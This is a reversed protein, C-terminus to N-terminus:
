TSPPMNSFALTPGKRLGRWAQFLWCFCGAEWLSCCGCFGGLWGSASGQRLWRPRLPLAAPFTPIRAKHYDEFYKLNFTLIHTPIWLLVALALLLGIWDIRGLGLTRGALVPMGGAIGGWVISWHTRRKLVLTYVVVNFFLGALVIAGYLGNMALALVVGAMSLSLGLVLGQRPDVSGAPLPRGCTRGMLADIDRDYVMNLVTSGGIAMFLSLALGMLTLPHMVPCRCSMYGAVGTLLLLGTQLSKTLAWYKRL